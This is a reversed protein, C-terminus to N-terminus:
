TIEVTAQQWLTFSQASVARAKPDCCLFYVEKDKAYGICSFSWLHIHLSSPNPNLDQLM